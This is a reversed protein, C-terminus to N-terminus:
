EVDQRARSASVETSVAVGAMGRLDVEEVDAPSVVIDMGELASPGAPTFRSPSVDLSDTAVSADVAVFAFTFPLAAFSSASETPTSTLVL